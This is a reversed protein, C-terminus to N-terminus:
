REKFLSNIKHIHKPKIVVIVEDGAQIQTDGRPIMTEGGRIVAGVIAQRKYPKLYPLLRRVVSHDYVRGLEEDDWGDTSRRLGGRRRASGQTHSWGGAMGGGWFAM